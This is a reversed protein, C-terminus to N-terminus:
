EVYCGLLSAISKAALQGMVETRTGPQTDPDSSRWMDGTLRAVHGFVQRGDTLIFWPDHVAVISVGRKQMGGMAKGLKTEVFMKYKEPKTVRSIWSRKGDSM